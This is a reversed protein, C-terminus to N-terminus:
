ILSFAAFHIELLHLITFLKHSLVINERYRVLAEKKDGHALLLYTEFRDSSLVSDIERVTSESYYPISM